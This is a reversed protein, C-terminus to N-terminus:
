CINVMFSSQNWLSTQRTLQDLAKHKKVKQSYICEIHYPSYSRYFNPVFQGLLM